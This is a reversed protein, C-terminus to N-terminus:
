PDFVLTLNKLFGFFGFFSFGLFLGLAGGFEALFSEFPYLITERKETIRTNTLMLSMGQRDLNLPRPEGVLQYEVYRCPFSCGTTALFAEKSNYLATQFEWNIKRLEEVKTCKPITTDTWNDWPLRCGIKRAFSNKVCAKFSYGLSEECPNNSSRLEVHSVAKVYYLNLGSHPNLNIFALPFTEPNFSVTYLHPDHIFIHYSHNQMLLITLIKTADSGITYSNNLTHCQGGTFLTIDTDWASSPISPSDLYLTDTVTENFSFTNERICELAEEANASNNCFKDFVYLKAVVNEFNGEHKWGIADKLACITVAPPAEQDFDVKEEITFTSEDLYKNISEQGFLIYFLLLLLVFIFIDISMM